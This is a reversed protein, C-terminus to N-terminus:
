HAPSDLPVIEDASAQNLVTDIVRSHEFYVTFNPYVWREIRPWQAKEGGRPPLIKEPSGYRKKVEARSQGHTPRQSHDRQARDVLLTAAFANSGAIFFTIFALLYLRM